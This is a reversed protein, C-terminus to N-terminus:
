IKKISLKQKAIKISLVRRFLAVHKLATHFVYIDSKCECILAGCMTFLALGYSFRKCNKNHKDLM